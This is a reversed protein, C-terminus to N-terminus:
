ESGLRDRLTLYQRARGCLAQLPILSFVTHRHKPLFSVSVCPIWLRVFQRPSSRAMGDDLVLTGRDINGNVRATPKTEAVLLQGTSTSTEEM